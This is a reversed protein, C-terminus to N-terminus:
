AQLGLLAAGGHDHERLWTRADQYEPCARAVLAWFKPSHDMRKLHMLEHVVVYDRVWDPAHVLRWNLCIHGNKSCSGWRWKQNRVSVRTVELGHQAALEFVRAPLERRARERWERVVAAAPAAARHREAREREQEVRHREKAIWRQEREVFATAERKSGWRPITVRISGDGAVRIVYRRARPHRVFSTRPEAHATRREPEDNTTRREVDFPLRAQM